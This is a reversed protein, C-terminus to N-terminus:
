QGILKNFFEKIRDELKRKFSRAMDLFREWLTPPAPSPAPTQPTLPKSQLQSIWQDIIGRRNSDYERQNIFGADFAEKLETLAKRLSM